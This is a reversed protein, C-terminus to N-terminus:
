NVGLFIVCLILLLVVIMFGKILVIELLVFFFVVILIEFEVFCFGCPTKKFADLGMIIKRVNGAKSFLEMIQAETTSFALNGVYVTSTKELLAKQKERSYVSKRDYYETNITTDRFLFAM